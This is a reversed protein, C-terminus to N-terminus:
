SLKVIEDIIKRKEIKLLKLKEKDEDNSKEKLRCIEINLRSIERELKYIKKFRCSIVRSPFLSENLLPDKSAEKSSPESTKEENPIGVWIFPSKAM